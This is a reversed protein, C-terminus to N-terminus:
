FAVKLVMLNIMQTYMTHIYKVGHVYVKSGM